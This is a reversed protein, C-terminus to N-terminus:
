YLWERKGKFKRIMCSASDPADDHQANETYDLIENIYDADTEELWIIDNWYKRLYTSIKIFKNMNESYDEVYQGNNRLEKALYGKDANRECSISGVKYKDQLAYIESLCDDVHKNWRKGLMYFKGGVFKCITYATGDEGGYSADIHSVGDYILTEDSTFKPNTFLADVDAIHKLEYNASFLSPTMSQRIQELKERDILGTSYCDYTIKNPMLESICDDKHWPTGTNFIRGGRNKVNQLEMYVNKVREREARSIRDKLNVIDDTVVIDAHKGTLSGSSGIGLLQVMGKTSTNLSTDLKFSTDQTFKIECGYLRLAITQFISTKLLNSVQKIVEIVDDDTKRVFIITKYPFLVIIFAFCISLCTTKYSGRHALLTFEDDGYIMMKLWENHLETLDKFGCLQGIKYPENRLLSVLNKDM